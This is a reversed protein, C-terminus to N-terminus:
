IMWCAGAEPSKCQSNGRGPVRGQSNAQSMGEGWEIKGWIGGGVWPFGERIVGSLCVMGRKCRVGGEVQSKEMESMLVQCTYILHCIDVGWQWLPLSKAKNGAADGAGPGTGLMWYINFSNTPREMHALGQKPIEGANFQESQDSANQSPFVVKQM